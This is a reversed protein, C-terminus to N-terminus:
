LALSIIWASFATHIMSSFQNSAIANAGLAHGIGLYLAYGFLAGFLTFILHRLYRKLKLNM